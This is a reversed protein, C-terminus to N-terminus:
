NFYENVYKTKFFELSTSERMENSMNNWLNCSSIVYSRRYFKTTAKPAFLLNNVSQRTLRLSVQSVYQFVNLYEPTLNNLVKYIITQHCAYVKKLNITSFTISIKNRFPDLLRESEVFKCINVDYKVSSINLCSFQGFYLPDLM